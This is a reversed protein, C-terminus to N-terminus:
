SEHYKCNIRGLFLAAVGPRQFQNNPKLELCYKYLISPMSDGSSVQTSPVSSYASSQDKCYPKYTSSMEFLLIHVNGIRKRLEYIEENCSKIQQKKDRGYGRLDLAPYSKYIHLAKIWGVQAVHNFICDSGSMCYIHFLQDASTISLNKLEKICEFKCLTWAQSRKPSMIKFNSSHIFPIFDWDDGLILFNDHPSRQVLRAIEFDAQDDSSLITFGFKAQMADLISHQLADDPRGCFNRVDRMLQKNLNPRKFNRSAAIVKKVAAKFLPTKVPERNKVLTKPEAILVAKKM